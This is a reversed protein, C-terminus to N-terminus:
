LLTVGKGTPPSALFDKWDEPNQVEVFIKNM